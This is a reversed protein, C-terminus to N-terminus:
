PENPAILLVRAGGDPAMVRLRLYAAEGADTVANNFQEATGVAKGDVHTIVMGPELGQEAADSLEDVSTIVVGAITADYGFRQALDEGLTQVRLGYRAAGVADAAGGNQADAAAEPRPAITVEVTRKEGGRYFEVAM